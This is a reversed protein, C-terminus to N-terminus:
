RVRGIRDVSSQPLARNKAGKDADAERSLRAVEAEAKEAREEEERAKDNAEDLAKKGEEVQRAREEKVAAQFRRAERQTGDVFGKFYMCLVVTVFIGIKKYESGAGTFYFVAVCIITMLVVTEWDLMSLYMGVGGLLSAGVGLLVLKLLPTLVFPLAIGLM